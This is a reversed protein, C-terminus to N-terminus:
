NQIEAFSCVAGKFCNCQIVFLYFSDIYHYLYFIIIIIFYIFRIEPANFPVNVYKNKM